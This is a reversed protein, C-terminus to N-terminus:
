IVKLVAVLDGFSKDKPSVHSILDRLLSYNRAGIVSLLVVAHREQETKNAMLCLEVREVYAEISETEHDFDILQGVTAM